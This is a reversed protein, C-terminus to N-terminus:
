NSLMNTYRAYTCDPPTVVIFANNFISNEYTLVSNVFLGVLAADSIGFCCGVFLLRRGNDIIADTLSKLRDVSFSRVTILKLPILSRASFQGPTQNLLLLVDRHKPVNRERVHRLIRASTTVNFIYFDVADGFNDRRKRRSALFVTPPIPSREDAFTAFGRLRNGCNSLARSVMSERVVSNRANASKTYLHPSATTTYYCVRITCHWESRIERKDISGSLFSSCPSRINRAIILRCTANEQKVM